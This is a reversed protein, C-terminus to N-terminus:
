RDNKLHELHTKKYETYYKIKNWQSNMTRTDQTMDTWGLYYSQKELSLKSIMYTQDEQTAIRLKLKTDKYECIYLSAGFELGM